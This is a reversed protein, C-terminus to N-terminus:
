EEEMEFDSENYARIKGGLGIFSVIEEEISYLSCESNNPRFGIEINWGPESYSDSGVKRDYVSGGVSISFSSETIYFDISKWENFDRDGSYYRIGFSCNAGPTPEPMMELVYLAKGLAIIEQPKIGPQSLFLRATKIALEIARDDEITLDFQEKEEEEDFEDQENTSPVMLEGRDIPQETGTTSMNLSQERRHEALILSGERYSKLIAEVKARGTSHKEEEQIGM